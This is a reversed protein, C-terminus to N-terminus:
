ATTAPLPDPRWGTRALFLRTVGYALVYLSAADILIALVQGALLTWRPSQSLGLGLLLAPGLLSVFTCVLALVLLPPRLGAAERFADGVNWPLAAISAPLFLLLSGVALAGAVMAIAESATSLFLINETLKGGFLGPALFLFLMVAALAVLLCYGLCFAIFGWSPAAGRPKQGDLLFQKFWQDLLLVYVSAIIASLGSAALGTLALLKVIAVGATCLLAM